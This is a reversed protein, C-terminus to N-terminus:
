GPRARGVSLPQSVASGGGIVLGVGVLPGEKAILARNHEPSLTLDNPHAPVELMEDVVHDADNILKKVKAPRRQSPHATRRDEKAAPSALMNDDKVM